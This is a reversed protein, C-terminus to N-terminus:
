RPSWDGFAGVVNNKYWASGEFEKDLIELIEKRSMKYVPEKGNLYDEDSYGSLERFREHFRDADMKGQCLNKDRGSCFCACKEKPYVLGQHHNEPQWCWTSEDMRKRLIELMTKSKEKM